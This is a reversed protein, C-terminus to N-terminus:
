KETWVSFVSDLSEEIQEPLDHSSREKAIALLRDDSGLGASNGQGQEGFVQTQWPPSVSTADDTAQEGLDGRHGLRAQDQGFSM